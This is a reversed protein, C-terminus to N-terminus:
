KKKASKKAGGKAAKKAGGSGKAAQKGGAKGGAKKGGKKAGKKGGKAAKKLEMRPRRAAERWARQIIKAAHMRAVQAATKSLESLDHNNKLRQETRLREQLGQLM